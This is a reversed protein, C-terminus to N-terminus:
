CTIGLLPQVASLRRCGLLLMPATGTTSTCGPASRSAANRGTRITAFSAMGEVCDPHLLGGEREHTAHLPAHLSTKLGPLRCEAAFAQSRYASGNDTPVARVRIGFRSYYALADRLFVLVSEQREDPLVASLAILSHDDIAVHVHESGASEMSGRRSGTVRHSPWVIRGLKKIDLHLLDGPAAHEYREAPAQPERDRMRSRKVRRLIRSVARSLVTHMSIRWGTWRERRLAEVLRIKDPPTPQGSVAAKLDPGASRCPWQESFCRVWKGGIKVSIVFDAASRRLSSGAQVRRILEARSQMTLRANQHYNM